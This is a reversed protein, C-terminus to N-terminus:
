PNVITIRRLEGPDRGERIWSEALLSRWDPPRDLLLLAGEGAGLGRSWGEFRNPYTPFPSAAVRGGALFAYRYVHWYDGYVHTVGARPEVRGAVRVSGEGGLWGLGRYWSAVSATMAAVLAGALVLRM